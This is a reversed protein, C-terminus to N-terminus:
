YNYYMVLSIPKEAYQVEEARPVQNVPTSDVGFTQSTRSGSINSMNVGGTSSSSSRGDDSKVM